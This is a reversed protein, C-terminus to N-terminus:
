VNDRSMFRVDMEVSKQWLKDNTKVAQTIRMGTIGYCTFGSYAQTLRLALSQETTLVTSSQWYLNSIILGFAQEAQAPTTQVLKTEYQIKTKALFVGSGPTVIEELDPTTITLNPHLTPTNEDSLSFAQTPFGCIPLLLAKWASELVYAPAYVQAM